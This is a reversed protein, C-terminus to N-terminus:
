FLPILEYMLFVITCGVLFGQIFNEMSFEKRGVLRGLEFIRKENETKM